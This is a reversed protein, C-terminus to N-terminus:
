KKNLASFLRLLSVQWPPGEPVYDASKRSAQCNKGCTCLMREKVGPVTMELVIEMWGDMWRM